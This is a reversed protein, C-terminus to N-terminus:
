MDSSRLVIGKFKEDLGLKQDVVSIVDFIYIFSIFDSNCSTDDSFTFFNM